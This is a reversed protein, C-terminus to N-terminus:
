IPLHQTDYYLCTVCRMGEIKVAFNEPVPTMM